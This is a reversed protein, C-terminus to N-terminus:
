KKFLSSNDRVFRKIIKDIFFVEGRKLYIYGVVSAFIAGLGDVILDWMTDILGSKQMNLGFIQDMGFEFIEWVAGIAMAFCFSFLVITIPRANIKNGKYLVYLIIFGAFGLAVGSGVHLVADWWWYRVYYDRVEGLFLSAFAFLLILTEFEIPINVRYKKEFLKPLFTILFNLSIMFLLAWRKEYISFAFAILLIARIILM